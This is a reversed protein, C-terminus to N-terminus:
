PHNYKSSDYKCNPASHNNISKPNTSLPFLTFFLTLLAVSPIFIYLIFWEIKRHIRQKKEWKLYNYHGGQENVIKGKKTLVDRDDRNVFTEIYNETLLFQRIQHFLNHREKLSFSFLQEDIIESRREKIWTFLLDVNWGKPSGYIFHTLVIDAIKIEDSTMM